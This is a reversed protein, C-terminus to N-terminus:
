GRCTTRHSLGSRLTSVEAGETTISWPAANNPPLPRDATLLGQQLVSSWRVFGDIAPAKKETLDPQLDQDFEADLPAQNYVPFQLWGREVAVFGFLNADQGLSYTKRLHAALGREDHRLPIGDVGESTFQEDYRNKADPSVNLSLTWDPNHDSM